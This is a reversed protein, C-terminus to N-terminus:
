GERIKAEIRAARARVQSDWKTAKLDDAAEAYRGAKLLSLFTTFGRLGAVGLNFAMDAVARQRPESLGSLWPLAAYLAPTKADVDWGCIIRAQEPTLPTKNLAHGIGFTPNGEFTYGPGVIATPNADDYVYLRVGEDATLDDILKDRDFM